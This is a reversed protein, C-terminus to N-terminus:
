KTEGGRTDFYTKLVWTSVAIVAGISENTRSDIALYLLGSTLVIALVARVSGEPIWLPNPGRPCEPAKEAAPSIATTQEDAM